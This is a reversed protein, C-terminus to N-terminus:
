FNLTSRVKWIKGYSMTITPLRDVLDEKLIVVDRGKTKTKTIIMKFQKKTKTDKYKHRQRQIYLGNTM